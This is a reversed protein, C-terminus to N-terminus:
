LEFSFKIYNNIEEPCELTIKIQDGSQASIFQTNTGISCANLLEISQDGFIQTIKATCESTLFFKSNSDSPEVKARVIIGQLNEKNLTITTEYTTGSSATASFANSRRTFGNTGDTVTLDSNGVGQVSGINSYTIQEPITLDITKDTITAAEGNVKIVDIKNVEANEAIGGLKTKEETTYDNTSLSKGEIKDVKENLKNDVESKKYYNKLDVSGGGGSAAVQDAYDKALALTIYDM